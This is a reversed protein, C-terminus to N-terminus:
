DSDAPTEPWAPIIVDAGTIVPAALRQWCRWAYAARRDPEQAPREETPSQDAEEGKLAAWMAQERAAARALLDRSQRTQYETITWLALYSRDDLIPAGEAPGPGRDPSGYGEIRAALSIVSEAPKLSLGLFGAGLESARQALQDLARFDAEPSEIDPLLLPRAAEPWPQLNLRRTLYLEWGPWSLYFAQAPDGQDADVYPWLHPALLHRSKPNGDNMKDAM